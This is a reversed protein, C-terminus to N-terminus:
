IEVRHSILDLQWQTARSVKRNVSAGVVNSQRNEYFDSVIMRLAQTIMPNDNTSTTVEIEYPYARDYVSPETETFEIHPTKGLTVIYNSASLLTRVNSSDYYYIAVSSVLGLPLYCDLLSTMYGKLVGSVLIGTEQYLMVHASDIYSDIETDFSDDYIRLHLKADDRTIGNTSTYTEIKLNSVM